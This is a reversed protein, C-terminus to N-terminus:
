MRRQSGRPDNGSQAYPDLRERCRGVVSAVYNDVTFSPTLIKSPPSVLKFRNVDRHVKVFENVNGNAMWGSVMGLMNETMM